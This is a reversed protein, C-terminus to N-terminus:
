KEPPMGIREYFAVGGVAGRDLMEDLAGVGRRFELVELHDLLLLSDFHLPAHGGSEHGVCVCVRM